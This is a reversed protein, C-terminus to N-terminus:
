LVSRGRGLACGRANPKLGLASFTSLLATRCGFPSFTAPLKATLGLSYCWGGREPVGRVQQRRCWDWGGLLLRTPERRPLGRRGTAAAQGRLLVLQMPQADAKASNIYHHLSDTASAPVFHM